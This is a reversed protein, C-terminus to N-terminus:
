KAGAAAKAMLEKAGADIWPLVGTM